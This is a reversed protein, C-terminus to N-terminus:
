RGSVNPIEEESVMSAPLYFRFTTCQGPTSSVMIQGGHQQIMSYVVALGIGNGTKKTTYYPEFIKGLKEPDIGNGEDQIEVTVYHGAALLGKEGEKIITNWCTININGHDQM